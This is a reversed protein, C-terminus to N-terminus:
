PAARYHERADQLHECMQAAGLLIRPTHRQIIDPPIFKLQQHKVSTLSPWNNWNDLWEPRAEGMGSAVIVQPDLRLIAEVSIKPALAAADAFINRGGCLRIVDSILHKGNLTQLPDNWVQYFVSVPERDSYQERLSSLTDLFHDSATDIAEMGTLQALKKMTKGIDELERPETFFVPIGLNLIPSVRQMGNGSYWALVLDPQLRVIAEASFDKYTGVRPLAQAAVPFDSYSVAGVLKDGAGIAYVMEAIHPALVVIRKAAHPLVITRGADDVLTITGDAARTTEKEALVAVSFLLAVFLVARQVTHKFTCNFLPM